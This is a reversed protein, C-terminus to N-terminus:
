STTHTWTFALWFLGQLLILRQHNIRPLASLLKRLLWNAILPVSPICSPSESREQTNMSSNFSMRKLFYNKNKTQSLQIDQGGCNGGVGSWRTFELLPSSSGCWSVQSRTTTQWFHKALLKHFFGFLSKKAPGIGQTKGYPLWMKKNRPFTKTPDQNFRFSIQYLSNACPQCVHSTRSSISWIKFYMTM